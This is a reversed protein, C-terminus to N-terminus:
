YAPGNDYHAIWNKQLETQNQSAETLKPGKKGAKKITKKINEVLFM